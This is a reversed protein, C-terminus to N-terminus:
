SFRGFRYHRALAPEKGKLMQSVLKMGMLSFTIGNGGFGLVFLASPFAPHAGIYPLGDKTEGFTGAWSFDIRFGNGPLLEGASRLLKNAKKQLLADRKQNDVFDEDEGGILLRNDDTTRMYLYPRGTNWFLTNSLDASVKKVPETVIAYTSVLKVFDEKIIETSEFGNCYIIKKARITNGWQTTATVGQRGYDIKKIGTKDFIRLGKKHNWALLDHTFIFADMSGGQQSLIGGYNKGIGLRETIEAAELWRVDFGYRSRTSCEKKLWAVDKKVQTFYLSQKKQFGCGSRIKKAIKGLEDIAAYCGRYSEVAAEEGATEILKYLPIDIEYQLMSTTASTSGNAIERRDILVTDYGDKICQHAMLSGTIGGGAVLIDTTIDKDLSPYSHLIGNKVLWFPEASKLDM